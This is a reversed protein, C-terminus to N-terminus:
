HVKNLHYMTSTLDFNNKFRILRCVPGDKGKKASRIGIYPYDCRNFVLRPTIKIM